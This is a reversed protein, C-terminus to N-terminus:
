RLGGQMAKCALQAADLSINCGMRYVPVQKILEDLLGLLLDMNQEDPPRLTQHYLPLVAEGGSIPRIWNEESQELVCIGGLPVGMNVNLDTKGSFPTGFAHFVGDIKRLAPKDDNLIIVEDGFAKKWLGTHTSKGTGCPASFLYARGRYALASAHLVFGGYHVLRRYFGFGMWLYECSDITLEPHLKHKEEYFSQPFDVVIDANGSFDKLYPVGQKLLTSHQPDMEVKLGAIEYRPM